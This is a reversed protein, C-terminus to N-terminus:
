GVARERRELFFTTYGELSPPEDRAEPLLPLLHVQRAEAVQLPRLQSLLQRTEVALSTQSWTRVTPTLPVHTELGEHTEFM